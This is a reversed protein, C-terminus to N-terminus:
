ERKLLLLRNKALAEHLRRRVLFIGEPRLSSAVRNSLIVYYAGASSQARPDIWLSTGTFGFHGFSQPSLAAVSGRVLPKHFGLGLRAFDAILSMYANEPKKLCALFFSGFARISKLDGFLGAHGALGGLFYCNLDHVQACIYRGRVPCLGTSAINNSIEPLAHASDFFSLNHHIELKEWTDNFINILPKKFRQELLLGLALFNLDSYCRQKNVENTPRQEFLKKFIIQKNLFFNSSIGACEYFKVHAALGSTHALLNRISVGPWCGFPQEDLTMRNDVLARALALTTGIIKTLSALDYLTHESTPILFNRDSFGAYYNNEGSSVSVSPAVGMTVASEVISTINQRM